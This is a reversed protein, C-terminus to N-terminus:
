RTLQQYRSVAMKYDIRFDVQQDLAQCLLAQAELLDSVPLLGAEYNQRTTELNASAEEVMKEALDLQAYREELTNWAQRTELAMKETLDAYDRQALQVKLAAEKQKYANEWWGTLPVQLSAFVLGNSAYDEFILNGYAFGAGVMLHPLAEGIVMKRQLRAADIQLDLLRTELRQSVSTEPDAFLYDPSMMEEALTDTLEIDDTYPVGIMQCLARQALQIGNQIRLLNSQMETRKLSVKLVENRTLLGAAQAGEADRYLTDLYALATLVTQRKAKLSVVLWYSQETQLLVEQEKLDCQLEAAEVGVRALQNGHAIQGGMFVPQVLTAGVSVGKEAFSISEPLGMAHGYQMYYNHLWQRAAANDIDDIDFEVLPNLSYYGLAVGSINPFYKTFAQKKVLRAMEVNMEANRVSADHELALTLCSDLSLSQGQVGACLLVCLIWIMWYKRYNKM